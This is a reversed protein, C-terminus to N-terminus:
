LNGLPQLTLKLFRGAEIKNAAVRAGPAGGNENLQFLRGPRRLNRVDPIMDPLADAVDTMGQRGANDTGAKVVFEAIGVSDDVSESGVPESM